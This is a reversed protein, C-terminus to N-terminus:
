HIGISDKKKKRFSYLTKPPLSPSNLLPLSVKVEQITNDGGAEKENKNHADIRKRKSFFTLQNKQVRLIHAAKNEAKAM